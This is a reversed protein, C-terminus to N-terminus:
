HGELPRRGAETIRIRGVTQGGAEIDRRTTALGARILGALMRRQFGNVFMAAETAGFPSGALFQLACASSHASANRPPAPMEYLGLPFEFRSQDRRYHQHPFRYWRHAAILVAARLLV